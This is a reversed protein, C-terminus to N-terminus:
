NKHGQHITIVLKAKIPQSGAMKDNIKLKCRLALNKATM